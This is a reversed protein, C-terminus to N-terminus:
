YTRIIGTSGEELQIGYIAIKLVTPAVIGKIPIAAIELVGPKSKPSALRKKYFRDTNTRGVVVLVPHIVLDSIVAQM